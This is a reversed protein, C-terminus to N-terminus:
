NIVKYRKYDEIALRIGEEISIEQSWGLITKAKNNSLFEIDETGESKVEIKLDNRGMVDLITKVVDLTSINSDPYFNFSEGWLSNDKMIEALKILGKITDKIYLFGRKSRDNGLILPSKGKQVNLITYPIFHDRYPEIGGYTNTVRAATIPLNYTKAYTRAMIDGCLKTAGYVDVSNLPSNEPTPYILQEGYIHNSSVYVIHPFNNSLRLADLLNCTILVNVMFANLPNNRAKKINSFGALHFCCMLDNSKIRKYLGEFDLMDCSIYNFRDHFPVLVPNLGEEVDISTIKAGKDILYLILEAGLYGNGGTVL